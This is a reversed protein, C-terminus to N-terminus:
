ALMAKLQALEACRSGISSSCAAGHSEPSLTSRLVERQKEYEGTALDRFLEATVQADYLARHAKAGDISSGYWGTADGLSMKSRPRRRIGMARPYVRQLDLWRHSLGMPVAKAACEALVQKHDNDSWAILRYSGKGIWGEFSAMAEAFEPQNALDWYGIDTLRRVARSIEHSYEPKVLQSFEGTVNGKADTKVAGIEIIERVLGSPRGANRVPAFELDVVINFDYVSAKPSAM